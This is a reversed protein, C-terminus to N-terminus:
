WLLAAPSLGFFDPCAFISLFALPISLLFWWLSMSLLSPIQIFDSTPWGVQWSLATNLLSMM